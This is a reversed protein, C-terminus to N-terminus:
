TASTYAAARPKVYKWFLLHASPEKGVAERVEDKFVLRLRTRKKPKRRSPRYMNGSVRSPMGTPQMACQGERWTQPRKCRCTRDTVRTWFVTHTHAGQGATKTGTQAVTVGGWFFILEPVNTLLSLYVKGRVRCVFGPFSCCDVPCPVEQSSECFAYIILSFLSLEVM